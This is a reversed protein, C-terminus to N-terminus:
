HGESRIRNQNSAQTLNVAPPSGLMQPVTEPSGDFGRFGDGVLQPIGTMIGHVTVVASHGCCQSWQVTVVASHGVEWGM